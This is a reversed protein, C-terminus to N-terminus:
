FPLDLRYLALGAPVPKSTIKMTVTYKKGKQSGSADVKLDVDKLTKGAEACEKEVNVLLRHVSPPYKWIMVRQADHSFVNTAFRQVSEEGDRCMTCNEGQCETEGEGFGHTITEIPSDNLIRLEQPKGSEIKLYKGPRVKQEAFSM